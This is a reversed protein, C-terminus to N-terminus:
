RSSRATSRRQLMRKSILHDRGVFEHWLAAAIHTVLLAMLLYAAYVHSYGAISRWTEDDGGEFLIPIDFLGFWDLPRGIWGWLVYGSIPLVFLLLYILRHAGSAALRQWPPVSAPLPPPAHTARWVSRLVILALILLGIRVHQNLLQGALPKSAKDAAVGLVLQLIVLVAM